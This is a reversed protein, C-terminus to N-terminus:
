IETGSDGGMRKRLLEQWEPPYDELKNRGSKISVSIVRDLFAELRGAPVDSVSMAGELVPRCMQQYFTEEQSAEKAGEEQEAWKGTVNMDRLMRADSNVAHLAVSMMRKLLEGYDEWPEHFGETAQTVEFCVEGDEPDFSFRGLILRYNIEMAKELLSARFEKRANLIGPIRFEIFDRDNNVRVTINFDEFPLLFVVQGDPREREFVANFDEKLFKRVYDVDIPM